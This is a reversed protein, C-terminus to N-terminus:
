KGVCFSSFIEDLLKDDVSEGTIRGLLWLTERLDVAILDLQTGGRLAEIAQILKAAAQQALAIHRQHTLMEERPQTLFQSLYSLVQSLGNGNKASVSFVPSHKVAKIQGTTVVPPQDEKNLLVASPCRLEMSLLQREADDLPKTADILLLAVDANEIVQRARQVGIIEVADSSERLGATDLLFVQFGNLTFSGELVDRTTGPIDTVIARDESLLANFLTSKGTNPSGYLAFAFDPGYFARPM